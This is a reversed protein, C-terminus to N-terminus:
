TRPSSRGQHGDRGGRRRAGHPGHLAGPEDVTFRLPYYGSPLGAAHRDVEIPEGVTSGHAGLITVALREPTAISRSSVTPTPWASPLQIEGGAVLM